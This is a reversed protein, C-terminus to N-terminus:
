IQLSSDECSRGIAVAIRLLAVHGITFVFCLVCYRMELDAVCAMAGAM